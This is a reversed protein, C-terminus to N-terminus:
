PQRSFTMTGRHGALDLHLNEGDLVMQRVENIQRKFEGDLSEPPCMARTSFALDITLSPEDRAYTGGMRNCDVQANVTGDENFTLSFNEPVGPTFSNDDNLLTRQWYWNIDLFEEIYGGAWTPAAFLSLITCLVLDNINNRVM